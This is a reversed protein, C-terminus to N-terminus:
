RKGIMRHKLIFNYFDKHRGIIKINRKSSLGSGADISSPLKVTLAIFIEMFSCHLRAM